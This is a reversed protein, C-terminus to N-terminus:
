CMYASNGNGSQIVWLNTDHLQNLVCKSACHGCTYNILIHRHGM